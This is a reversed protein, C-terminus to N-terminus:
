EQDTEGYSALKRYLTKRDMGLKKAALTKNNDVVKLAHLIYKREVDELTTLEEPNEGALTLRDDRYDVIKDPLDKITINDFRALAVAREIVNRLERVNGPWSYSLLKEAANPAIENASTGSKESFMKLFVKALLLIDVGRSRLPPLVLELVNIRYFLDQRFASEEIALELDRNTASIIRVDFEVEKNGGVPRAKREELARLLKVQM